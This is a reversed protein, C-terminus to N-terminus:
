LKTLLSRILPKLKEVARKRHNYKANEQPTLVFEDYYKNIEPLYLLARYPFGKTRLPSPEFPVIGRIKEEVTYVKGKLTVLVLVLRLQAERKNNPIGSMKKLTFKILEEDTAERKPDIWRHSKIGPEENLADIEFGGDDALTTLGSLKQYFTAKIIANEEFTKGTEEVKDNINLDKLGVLEIPLDALYKRIEALKGQNTTAILLKKM